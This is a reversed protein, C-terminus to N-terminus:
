AKKDVNVKYHLAGYMFGPAKPLTDDAIFAEVNELPLSLVEISEGTDELGGGSGQVQMTSDVQVSFIHHKSGSFGIASHYVALPKVDKAEVKFGCEELVEEAAIQELSASKDVIGACLEYTFGAELNPPPKGSKEAEKQLAVYVAPRFQRVLLLAKLDKHYIVVAVSPHTEVMDWKRTKGDLEYFIGIPKVFKSDGVDGTRVTGLRKLTCEMTKGGAVPKLGHKYYADDVPSAAAMVRVQQRHSARRAVFRAYSQLTITHSQLRCRMSLM